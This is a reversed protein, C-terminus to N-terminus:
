KKAREECFRPNLKETQGIDIFIKDDLYAHILIRTVLSSSLGQARSKQSLVFKDRESIRAYIRTQMAM